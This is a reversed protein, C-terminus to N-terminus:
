MMTVYNISYGWPRLQLYTFEHIEHTCCRYFSHRFKLKLNLGAPSGTDMAYIVPLSAYM